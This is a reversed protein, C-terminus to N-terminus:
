INSNIKSKLSSRFSGRKEAMRRRHWIDETGETGFIKRVM